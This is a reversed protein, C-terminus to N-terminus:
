SPRACERIGSQQELNLGLKKKQWRAVVDYLYKHSLEKKITVLVESWADMSICTHELGCSEHELCKVPYVSDEVAILIDWLSIESSRKRLQMGGSRGRISDILGAQKLRAVIQDMFDIPIGQRTAIQQRQQLSGNEHDALDMMIKLGYRSKATINM